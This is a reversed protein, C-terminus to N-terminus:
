YCYTGHEVHFMGEDGGEGEQCASKAEGGEKGRVKLETQGGEAKKSFEKLNEEDQDKSRHEVHFMLLSVM